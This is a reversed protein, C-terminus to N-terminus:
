FHLNASKDGQEIKNKLQQARNECIISMQKLKNENSAKNLSYKIFYDLSRKNLKYILKQVLERPLCEWVALMKIMDVPQENEPVSISMTIINVRKSMDSIKNTAITKNTAMYKILYYIYNDKNLKNYLSNANIGNYTSVRYLSNMVNAYTRDFALNGEKFVNSFQCSKYDVGKYSRNLYSYMKKNIHKKSLKIHGLLIDAIHDISAFLEDFKFHYDKGGPVRFEIYKVGRYYKTKIFSYSSAMWHHAMDIIDSYKNESETCGNQLLGKLNKCYKNKKLMRDPWLTGLLGYNISPIINELNVSDLNGNISMGVHLGCADTTTIGPTTDISEFFKKCMDKAKHYGMPPSIFEAGDITEDEEIRWKGQATKYSTGHYENIHHYTIDTIYSTNDIFQCIDSWMGEVEFEFGLVMDKYM